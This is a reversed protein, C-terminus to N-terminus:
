PGKELMRVTASRKQYSSAPDPTPSWPPRLPRKKKAYLPTGYLTTLQFFGKQYARIEGTAKRLPAQHVDPASSRARQLLSLITDCHSTWKEVSNKTDAGHAAFGRLQFNKEQRRCELIKINMQEIIGLTLDISVIRDMVFNSHICVIAVGATIGSLLVVAKQRITLHKFM